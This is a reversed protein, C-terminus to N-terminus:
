GQLHDLAIRSWEEVDITEKEILERMEDVSLFRYTDIEDDEVSVDEHIEAIYLMGFHVKGVDDSDYNIYGMQEVDCESVGVEEEIERRLGNMLPNGEDDVRDVHGGVGWSWKEHLREESGSRRFCFYTDDKKMLIYPIPQKYSPDEEADGRRMWEYEELIIDEYGGDERFGEFYTEQFLKERSVVLVDEDMKNM